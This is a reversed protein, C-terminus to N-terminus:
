RTRGSRSAELAAAYARRHPVGLEKSVAAAADRTSSGRALHVSVATALAEDRTSEPAADRRPGTAGAIVLVVEGRVEGASFRNAADELTGRWVEEHVKTLERCVAVDRDAARGALEALTGPLRTAAEFVVQTRADGMLADLRARRQAGKRPLFGEVCFRDTPLGSVVLAALAASPGPVVTVDFGAAAAASVLRNGPDSIAPMGADTVVAVTRGDSLSALIEPIRSTENHAHLSVLRGGSPVGAASLLARTRRTDECCVLDARELVEVARPSLDGLNGIPTAVLVIAGGGATV